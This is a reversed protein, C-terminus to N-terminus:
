NRITRIRFYKTNGFLDNGMSYGYYFIEKIIFDSVSTGLLTDHTINKNNELIEVLKLSQYKSILKSRKGNIDYTDTKITTYNLNDIMSDYIKNIKDVIEDNTIHKMDRYDDITNINVLSLVYNIYNFSIKGYMSTDGRIELNINSEKDGTFIRSVLSEIRNSDFISQSKGKIYVSMSNLSINSTVSKTYEFLPRDQKNVIFDIEKNEPIKKLSLGVLDRNDFHYDMVENLQSLTQSNKIHNLITNELTSSVAYFDSPNWRSSSINFNLKNEKKVQKILINFMKHIEKTIGENYYVHYFIYSKQTDIYNFFKNTTKIYTYKWTDFNKIDQKIIKRTSKVNIRSKDLNFNDADEIVLERGLQQRLSLFYLQLTENVRTQNTGLSSGTSSGYDVTKMFDNLKRLGYSTNIVPQYRKKVMFYNIAKNIDLEDDTTISKLIEKNNKIKVNRGKETNLTLKEGNKINNFFNIWRKTDKNLVPITLQAM